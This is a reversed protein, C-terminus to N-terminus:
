PAIVSRGETDVVGYKDNLQVVAKGDTFDSATDYTPAIVVRGDKDVYGYKGDKVVPALGESFSGAWTFGTLTLETKGAKDVYRVTDSTASTVKALGDSLSYAQEADTLTCIITGETDILTPAGNPLM